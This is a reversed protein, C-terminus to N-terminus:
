MLPVCPSPLACVVPWSLFESQVTVNVRDVSQTLPVGTINLSAMCNYQGGHSTLVPTFSLTRTSVEGAVETEMAVPNDTTLSGDATLWQLLPSIVLYEVVIVTCTLTLPRGATTLTQPALTINPPPLDAPFCVYGM